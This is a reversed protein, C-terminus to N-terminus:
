TNAVVTNSDDPTNAIPTALSDASNQLRLALANIAVPDNANSQLETVLELIVKIASAEVTETQAVQATLAALDLAMQAIEKQLLNISFVIGSLKQDILSYYQKWWDPTTNNM